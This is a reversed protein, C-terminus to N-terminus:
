EQKEQAHFEVRKLTGNPYYEFAKVKPCVGGLHFVCGECYECRNSSNTIINPDTIKGM